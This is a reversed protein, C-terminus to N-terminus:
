LQTERRTRRHWWARGAWLMAAYGATVLVLPGYAGAPLEEFGLLDGLATLPLLLGGLALAAAAYWVPRPPRRTAEGAVSLGYLVPLALAQTLLNETFWATHFMAASDPKAFGGTLRHMAQFMAIDSLSNLLGFGVAFRALSGWHLRAPGPGPTGRGIVAFSLQAADFCINQLLVQAPLMPLFPLLVGGALMSVANGLNCSLAVRLYAALNAVSTRGVALARGLSTLDRDALVVDAWERAAGVATGASIGVDAARLAPIDNVGDGLFGVTRGAQRLARVVRAKQEPSCRAFVATRRAAAALREDDLADLEAGLLVPGPALGLGQCLRAATRPHDGTVVKVEVGSRVMLALAEAASDAPEDQLAVFGLLTLEREDAPGYGGLRPALEARAVALLRLGAGTREAVLAQVEALAAEDLPRETDEGDEGEPVRLATCRELVAEPAGKVLLLHCGPERLVVSALRREADFPVLDVVAPEPGDLLGAADAAALLAEDVPDFLGPDVGLAADAATAAWRLAAPDAGGLPDLSLAVTVEGTTLTGTKDVCLVDMAGLESVAPLRRVVLRHSTLEHSGRALVTSLVLPLLEPTLGVAAAVAFPLLSASWGHLVTDAGVTLPVAALMFVILARVAGRVGREIVSRGGGVPDARQHAAGFRTAAGTALVLGTASGCAVRSGTFCLHPEDLLDGAPAAPPQDPAHRAVPESEGTLASQDLTLGDARLLRLDAPVADGCALRVVDGPVLQDVPVERAM